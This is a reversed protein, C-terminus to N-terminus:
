RRQGSLDYTVSAGTRARLTVTIADGDRGVEARDLETAPVALDQKAQAVVAALQEPAVEALALAPTDTGNDRDCLLRLGTTGQVRQNREFRPACTATGYQAKPQFFSVAPVTDDGATAYYLWLQNPEQEGYARRYDAYATTLSGASDIDALEVVSEGALTAWEQGQDTGCSVGIAAAGSPTIDLTSVVTRTAGYSTRCHERGRDHETFFEALPAEELAVGGFGANVANGAATGDDLYFYELRGDPKLISARGGFEALWFGAVTDGPQMGAALKTRLQDANEPLGPVQSPTPNRDPEAACGTLLLAAAAVAALMRRFTM